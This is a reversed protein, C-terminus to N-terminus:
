QESLEQVSEGDSWEFGHVWFLQSLLWWADSVAWIPVYHSCLYLTYMSKSPILVFYSWLEGWGGGEQGRCADLSWPSRESCFKKKSGLARAAPFFLFCLCSSLLPWPPPPSSPLPNNGLGFLCALSPPSFRGGAGRPGHQNQRPLASTSFCRTTVIPSCTLFSFAQYFKGVSVYVRVNACKCIHVSCQVSCVCARVCARVCVCVCVCDYM